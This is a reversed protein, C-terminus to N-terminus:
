ILARMLNQQARLYIVQALTAILTCKHANPIMKGFYSSSRTETWPGVNLSPPERARLGATPPRSQFMKLVLGGKSPLFSTGSTLILPLNRMFSPHLRSRRPSNWFQDFSTPSLYIQEVRCNGKWAAMWDKDILKAKDFRTEKKLFFCSSVLFHRQHDEITNSWHKWIPYSIKRKEIRKKTKNRRQFTQNQTKIQKINKM